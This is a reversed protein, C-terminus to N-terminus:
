GENLNDAVTPAPPIVRVSVLNSPIDGNPYRLHEGDVGLAEGDGKEVLGKVVIVGFGFTRQFQVEVEDGVRVTNLSDKLVNQDELTKM